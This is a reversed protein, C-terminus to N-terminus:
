SALRPRKIDVTTRSDTPQELGPRTETERRREENTSQPLIPAPATGDEWDAGTSRRRRRRVLTPEDDWETVADDNAVAAFALSFALDTAFTVM